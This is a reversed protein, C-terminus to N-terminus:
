GREVTRREIALLKELDITALMDKEVPGWDPKTPVNPLSHQLQARLSLASM